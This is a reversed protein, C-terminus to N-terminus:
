HSLIDMSFPSPSSNRGPRVHFKHKASALCVQRNKGFNLLQVNIIHRKSKSSKSPMMEAGQARESCLRQQAALFAGFGARSPPGAGGKTRCGWSPTGAPAAPMRCNAAAWTLCLSTNQLLSSSSSSLSIHMSTLLPQEASLGQLPDPKNSGREYRAKRLVETGM